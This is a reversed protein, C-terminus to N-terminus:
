NLRRWSGGTWRWAIRGEMVKIGNDTYVVDAWAYTQANERTIAVSQVEPVPQVTYAPSELRLRAESAANVNELDYLSLFAEVQPESLLERELALRWQFYGRWDLDNLQDPSLQALPVGALASLVGDVTPNTRLADLVVAPAHPGYNAQLSEIFGEGQVTLTDTRMHQAMWRAYDRHLWAADTTASPHTDGTAFRLLRAALQEAVMQALGPPLAVDARAREVLPSTIRLTWGDPSDWAVAPPRAAVIEITPDPPPEACALLMCGRAWWDPLREALARGLAADLERFTVRGAGTEITREDGWFTLDDPVHRWGNHAGGPNDYRWYFWVVHYPVGDILEEVVVRARQDDIATSVVEGTLQIRGAQKLRQYEEFRRSQELVFADSASRQIATYSALDGIRLATIEAEVTDLLDRRVRNEVDRLRWLIGLAVAGVVLVLGALIALFQQRAERRRQRALPDEVARTESQESEVHWDLKIGGM